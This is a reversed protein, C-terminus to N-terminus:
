GSNKLRNDADYEYITEKGGTDTEKIQNGNSDYTYTRNTYTGEYMDEGVVSVM